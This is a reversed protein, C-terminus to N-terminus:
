INSVGGFSVLLRQDNRYKFLKPEKVIRALTKLASFISFDCFTNLYTQAATKQTSKALQIPDIDDEIKYKEIESPPM